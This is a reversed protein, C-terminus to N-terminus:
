WKMLRYKNIFSMLAAPYGSISEGSNQDFYTESMRAVTKSKLGIKNAMKAEYKLLKRVGAVIDAPYEVKTVFAEKDIGEFFQPKGEVTIENDDVSEIVYLGHNLVSNSITITDGKRLGRVEEFVTFKNETDFRIQHFRIKKNQFPNNTETRIAIELGDLDEQTVDAYLKIADEISIILYSGGKCSFSLKNAIGKRKLQIKM